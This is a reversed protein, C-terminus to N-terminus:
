RYLRRILRSLISHEGAIQGIGVNDNKEDYEQKELDKEVGSFGTSPTTPSATASAPPTDPLTVM